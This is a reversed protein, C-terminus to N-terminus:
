RANAQAEAVARLPASDGGPELRRAIRGARATAIRTRVLQPQDTDLAAGAGGRLVLLIRGGSVAADDIDDLRVFWDERGMHLLRESTVYLDNAPRWQPPESEGPRRLELAVGRCVGLLVEGPGLRARVPDTPELPEPGFRRYRARAERAAAEDSDGASSRDDM